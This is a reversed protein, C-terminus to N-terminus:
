SEIGHQKVLESITTVMIAVDCPWPENCCECVGDTGENHRANLRRLSQAAILIQAPSLM